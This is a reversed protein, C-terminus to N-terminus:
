FGLFVFVFWSAMFDEYASPYKTLAEREFNYRNAMSRSEHNGRLLFVSKPWKVKAAALLLFVECGCSGRDVYDGMWLQKTETPSGAKKIIQLMDFLQGHIDGFLHCPAEIQLCNPEEKLIKACDRLLQRAAGAEIRGERFFHECLLTMAPTGNKGSFVQAGTLLVETPAKVDRMVRTPDSQLYSSSVDVKAQSQDEEDMPRDPLPVIRESNEIRRKIRLQEHAERQLHVENLRKDSGLRILRRFATTKDEEPKAEGVPATFPRAPAPSIVSRKNRRLEKKAQKQAAWEALEAAERESRRQQDNALDDLRERESNMVVKEAAHFQLLGDAVQTLIDLAKPSTGFAILRLLGAKSLLFSHGPVDATRRVLQEPWSSFVKEETGQIRLQAMLLPSVACFVTGDRIVGQVTMRYVNVSYLPGLLQKSSLGRGHWTALDGVDRPGAVRGVEPESSVRSASFRLEAAAMRTPDLQLSSKRWM